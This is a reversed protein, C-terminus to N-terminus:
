QHAVFQATTKSEVSVCLGTISCCKECVAVDQNRTDQFACEQKPVSRSQSCTFPAACSLSSLEPTDKVKGQGELGGGEEKIHAEERNEM